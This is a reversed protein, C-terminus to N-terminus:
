RWGMVQFFMELNETYGEWMYEMCEDDEENDNVRFMLLTLIDGQQLDGDDNLFEWIKGNKDQCSVNWISTEIQNSDLVVVLKGYYDESTIPNAEAQAPLAFATSVIILCTIIVAIICIKTEKM